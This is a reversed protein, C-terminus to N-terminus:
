RAQEDFFWTRQCHPTSIGASATAASGDSRADQRVSTTSSPRSGDSRSVTRKRWTWCRYTSSGPRRAPRGAPRPRRPTRGRPRPGRAPPPARRAGRRGAQRRRDLHGAPRRGLAGGPPAPRSTRTTRAGAPAPRPRPRAGPRATGRSGATPAPRSRSRGPPARGRGVPRRPQAAGQDGAVQQELAGVRREDGLELRRLPRRTEHPRADVLAEERDQGPRGALRVDHELEGIM